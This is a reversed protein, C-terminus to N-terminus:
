GRWCSWHARLGPYRAAAEAGFSWALMDADFWVADPDGRRYASVIDIGQERWAPTLDWANGRGPLWQGLGREGHGGVLYPDFTGGTECAAVALVEAPDAGHALARERLLGRVAERDPASALVALLAFLSVIFQLM